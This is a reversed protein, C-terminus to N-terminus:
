NKKNELKELNRIMKDSMGFDTGDYIDCVFGAKNPTWYKDYIANWFVDRLEWDLPINGDEDEADVQDQYWFERLKVHKKLFKATANSPFFQLAIYNVGNVERPFIVCQLQYDWVGGKEPNKTDEQLQNIRGIFDKEMPWSWKIMETPAWEVFQERLENLYKRAEYLDKFEANEKFLYAYFVRMSM